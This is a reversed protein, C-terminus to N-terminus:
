GEANRVFYSERGLMSYILTSAFVIRIIFKTRGRRIIVFRSSSYNPLCRGNKFRLDRCCKIITERKKILNKHSTWSEFRFLARQAM